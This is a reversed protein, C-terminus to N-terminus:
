LLLGTFIKTLTKTVTITEPLTYSKLKMLKMSKSIRLFLTLTVLYCDKERNRPLCM